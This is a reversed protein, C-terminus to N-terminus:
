RYFTQTVRFSEHGMEGTVFESGSMTWSHAILAGQEDRRVGLYTSSSIRRLRLMWSATLSQTLCNSTWPTYRSARTIAIKISVLQVSEQGRENVSSTRGLGKSVIHFPLLLICARSIGLLCFAEFALIYERVSHKSRM